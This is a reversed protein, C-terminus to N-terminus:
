WTGQFAGGAAAINNSALPKFDAAPQAAQVQAGLMERMVANREGFRIQRGDRLVLLQDAFEIFRSAHAAMLVLAGRNRMRTLAAALLAQGEADMGSNPEDLVFILPDGYLARALAIRQQQGASLGAGHPGLLTEYGKPLALIMEHVGAERAAAVTWEDATKQAVEAAGFRSINDAVTGPFLAYDQPLYGVFRGLRESPWDRYSAGDIRVEGADHPRANALVQLLTTKGAGSPGVIAIIQGGRASFNVDQLLARDQNPSRVAMANVVLHPTPAPLTMVPASDGRALQACLADYAARATAVSRWQVVIQDIPFLARTALMSGAFIAGASIQHRIALWAGLGLATSQLVIRVFKVIAANRAGIQNAQMQPISADARGASLIRTFAQGMGLAKVVDASGAAADQLSSQQAAAILSARSLRRMARENYIALAFLVFAGTLAFWGILPNLCFCFGVYIPAWPADFFALAPGGNIVARISDFERLTQGLRRSGNQDAGSMAFDFIRPAFVADVRQSARLLIRGRLWDLLSMTSLTLVLMATLLCLSAVSAAPLAMDYVGLMYLTPALFAINVIASFVLAAVLHSRTL